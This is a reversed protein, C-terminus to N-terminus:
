SGSKSSALALSEINACFSDKASTYAARDGAHIDASHRKLAEYDRRSDANARLHDRFRLHQGIRPNGEAYVHLHVADPAGRTFYRRNLIGNEGRVVYGVRGIARAFIDCAGLNAVIGLMDIVPKACLGPIATSGIHEIGLFCGPFATHLMEREAAFRAAWQPNHSVLEIM